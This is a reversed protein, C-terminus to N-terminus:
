AEAETLPSVPEPERLTVMCDGGEVTKKTVVIKEIEPNNPAEYSIKRITSEVISRLARAGTPKQKAKKAIEVLSEPDFEIEIGDMKFLAQIQKVISNKPKVLIEVLQEETLEITSTIIPLRGLMEPIIGFDLVDQETVETYGRTKDVKEKAVAGFGMSASKNLRRAVIDDIGAFAGACIFLINTTDVLDFTQMGAGAKGM